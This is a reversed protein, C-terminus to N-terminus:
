PLQRRSMSLTRSSSCSSCGAFRLPMGAHILVSQGAKLQGLMILELYATLWTEPVAAGQEWSFGESLPMVYGEPCAVKEAYRCILEYWADTFRHTAQRQPPEKTASQALM